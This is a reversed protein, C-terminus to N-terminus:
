NETFQLRYFASTGTFSVVEYYENGEQTPAPTVPVWNGSELNTTTVLVFGASNTTWSIFLIGFEPTITLSPPNVSSVILMANSTLISGFFNTVLVSYSGQDAAQVDTLTLIANTAGAIDEGDFTWQYSLPPAGEAVISLTVSAGKLVTKNQPQDIIAPSFQSTLCVYDVAATTAFPQTVDEGVSQAIVIKFGSGFASAGHNFTFGMLENDNDDCLSARINQGPLAQLALRYWTNESFAYAFRNFYNADVGSSFFMFLFSGGQAFPSVLDYLNNNTTNMVWIELIGDVSTTPSFFETNFRAEYRFSDTQFSTGSSWGVRQEPGIVSDLNLVTNSNLLGFSFTPAGIYPTPVPYAPFEGNWAAPLNTQWIPSLDPGNFDDFFLFNSAHFVTLEANSSVTSGAFNAVTVSYSGSQALQVDTLTLSSNTADDISAGDFNWQFSYPTNGIVGVNFVATQGVSTAQSAPQAVIVPASPTITLAANSSTTAGALNTVLVSYNGTNAYSVNSVTLNATQSGSINGGDTLNFGNLRWQYSLPLEGTAAVSFTATQGELVARNAPQSTITPPGDALVTSTSLFLCLSLITGAMRRMKMFAGQNFGVV